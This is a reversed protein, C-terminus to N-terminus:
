NFWQPRVSTVDNIRYNDWTCAGSAHDSFYRLGGYTGTTINADTVSLIEPGNKRASITSGVMRLTLNDNTVWDTTDTALTTGAAAVTRNLTIDNLEGTQRRNVVVRYYTQTADATTRGFLSCTTNTGGGSHATHVFVASVEHNVTAASTDAYDAAYDLVGTQNAQNSVIDITNATKGTWTYVCTLVGADSCNFTEAARRSAWAVPTQLTDWVRAVAAAGWQQMAVAFGKYYIDNSLTAAVKIPPRGTGLIIEYDGSTRPLKPIVLEKIVDTVSEGHIVKATSVAIDAKTKVDLKTDREDGILVVGKMDTPLRDSECLMLGPKTVDDRISDINGRGPLLESIARSRFPDTDSGDGDTPCLYVVAQAPVTFLIACVFLFTRLM